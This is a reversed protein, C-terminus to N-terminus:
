KPRSDPPRSSTGHTIKTRGQAIFPGLVTQLIPILGEFQIAELRGLKVLKASTQYHSLPELTSDAWTPEVTSLREEIVIVVRASDSTHEAKIAVAVLYGLVASLASDLYHLVQIVRGRLPEHLFPPESRILSVSMMRIMSVIPVHPIRSQSM